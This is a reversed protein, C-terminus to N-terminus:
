EGINELTIGAAEVMARVVDYNADNTPALGTWDYFDANGISEAWADTEAFAM